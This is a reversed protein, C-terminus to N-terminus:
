RTLEQLVEIMREELDGTTRCSAQSGGTGRNRAVAEVQVHAESGEGAPVVQTMMRLTIEYTDANPGAVGRGCDLFTSLRRGHIRLVRVNELGLIRGNPDARNPELGIAQYAAPLAAWVRSADAAFQGSVVGSTRTGQVSLVGGQSMVRTREIGAARETSTNAAACGALLTIGAVVLWRRRTSSSNPFPMSDHNMTRKPM